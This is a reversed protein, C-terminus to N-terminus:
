TLQEIARIIRAPNGAAVCNPPISKTVVSMAGVVSNDGISVGKLVMVRSSLWVNNGIHVPRVLGDTLQRTDPNVEHFDCDYIAVQDGFQCGDGISVEGNALISVNNSFCNREGILVRATKRRPELLIEGTGLRPAQLLGFTNDVGILLTGRGTSRVPVNFCTGFGIEMRQHYLGEMLRLRNVRWTSIARQSWQAARLLIRGPFSM